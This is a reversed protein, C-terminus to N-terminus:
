KTKGGLPDIKAPIEKYLYAAALGRGGVFLECLDPPIAEVEAAGRSLDVRLLRGTYAAM